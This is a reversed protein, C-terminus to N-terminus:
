LGGELRHRLQQLVGGGWQLKPCDRADLLRLKMCHEVGALGDIEHCGSAKLWQLETLQVLGEINKLKPCGRVDLYELSMCHEVGPLEVIEDSGSVELIQLKRLQALGQIIKLKRCGRVRVERLSRLTELSKIDEVKVCSQIRLIVLKSLGCLGRIQRLEECGNIYLLGLNPCVGEAFAVESIKTGKLSLRWLGLMCKENTYDLKNWSRRGEAERDVTRFPLEQLPCNRVTLGRLNNLKLLGQPLYEIGCGELMLETLQTM